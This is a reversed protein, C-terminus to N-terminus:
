TSMGSAINQFQTHGLEMSRIRDRATEALDKIEEHSHSVYHATSLWIDM